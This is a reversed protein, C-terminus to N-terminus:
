STVTIDVDHYPFSETDSARPSSFSGTLLASSENHPQQGRHPFDVPWRHIGRVFALSACSQQKSHDADSYFTLGVISVGTIQSMMAIM